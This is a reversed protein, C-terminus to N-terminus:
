IAKGWLIAKARRRAERVGSAMIIKNAFTFNICMLIALFSLRNMCSEKNM